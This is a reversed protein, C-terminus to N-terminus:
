RAAASPRAAGHRPLRLLPRRGPRPPPRPGPRPPPDLARRPRRAAVALLSPAVAGVGGAPRACARARARAAGRRRQGRDRHGHRTAYWNPGLHRVAVARPRVHPAPQAPRPPPAPDARFTVMVWAEGGRRGGVLSSTGILDYAPKILSLSAAPTGAPRVPDGVEARQLQQEGDGPEAAEPPGGPLQADGLGGRAAPDPRHFPLEADGQDVARRAAGPEGVRAREDRVPRPPHHLRGLREVRARLRQASRRSERSRTAALMVIASYRSGPQSIASRAAAGRCPPRAARRSSPPRRRAAARPRPRGRSRPPATRVPPGPRRRHDGVVAQDDHDGRAVRPGAAARRQVGASSAAVGSIRRSRPEPVRCTRSAARATCPPRAAGSSSSDEVVATFAAATLPAPGATSLSSADPLLQRGAPQHLDRHGPQPQPPRQPRTDAPRAGRGVRAPAPGAPSSAPTARLRAALPEDAPVRAAAVLARMVRLDEGMEPHWQVGLSGPPPRCSSRRWPATRRTRPPWWIRARPPGRGPPPLDARRDGGARDAYLTGPGADVPHSASSGPRRARARRPAPRTHRRAGREPAAHGPLHGAGPHRVGAGRRDPGAGLRRAGARAPGTRPDRSRATGPPSSMPAARSSSATWGPSPRRRRADPDDPPLMAALGGARQVLRPYGAPLLAAPLEWVGWRAAPELYTTVGILPRGAM